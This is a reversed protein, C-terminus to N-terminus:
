IEPFVRYTVSSHGRTYYNFSSSPIFMFVLNQEASHKVKLFCEVFLTFNIQFTNCVFENANCVFEYALCSNLRVKM